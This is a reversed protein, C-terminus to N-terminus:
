ENRGSPAYAREGGEIPRQGPFISAGRRRNAGSGPIHGDTGESCTCDRSHRPVGCRLKSAYGKPRTRSLLLPSSPSCIGPDAALRLLPALM